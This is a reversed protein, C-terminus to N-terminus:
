DNRLEKIISQKFQNRSPANVFIDQHKNVLKTLRGIPQQKAYEAHYLKESLLKNNRLTRVPRSRTFLMCLEPDNTIKHYIDYAIMADNMRRRIDLPQLNLLNCRDVYPALKFPAGNKRSELLHIVFQKQISEIDARYIEQYPNWIVSAFELRSRVYAIYLIKQTNVTFKDHATRKIFGILQRARGTIQEIHAGFNLQKDLLVGLDRVETKRTVQYDALKYHADVSHRTRAATFIVCKENNLFLRNNICWEYLKDIDRQLKITDAENNIKMFLKIDDAFLSVHAHEVVDVVDNIFISFFLPGLISGPTVGSPADFPRSSTEGIRVTYKRGSLTAAIWRATREGIKFNQLKGILKRHWVRDFATKFDGYFVDLQKKANFAEHAAVSLNLLNTTVSRHQRFGHQANTLLPDIIHTLKWKVAREFIKMLVSSIAIVRYNEISTRVGKKYIPIVKSAKIRGPIISCEFTKQFLLWIPWVIDGVCMKIVHPALGDLGANKSWKLSNIAAEIDFLSVNIDKAGNQECFVEDFNWPIEDRTYLSEFYDAFLEVINATTDAHRGGYNMQGPYNSTKSSLRAFKWFEKPNSAINRQVEDIYESQRVACTQNFDDLAIEYEKLHSANGNNRRKYLKDRRNKRQQIEKNWWKPKSSYKRIRIKPVYDDIANLVVEYFHTFANEVNMGNYIHAFNVSKLLRCISQYDGRKYNYTEIWSKEHSKYEYCDIIIEYPEHYLDQQDREILASRDVTVHVDDFSSSFVLDLVNGSKNQVNSMQYLSLTQMEKLFESAGRHYETDHAEIGSQLFYTDTDDAHWTISHLNFDGLVIIRHNPHSESLSRVCEAHLNAVSNQFKRMYLLYFILPAPKVTIEVAIHECQENHSLTLQRSNLKSHVSIAVGGSRRSTTNREVIRDHRYVDFQPPFYHHNPCIDSLWTETFCLVKYPSFEIKTCINRKNTICRVNNYYVSLTAAASVHKEDYNTMRLKTSSKKETLIREVDTLLKNFSGDDMTTHEMDMWLQLLRLGDFDVGGTGPINRHQISPSVINKNHTTDRGGHPPCISTNSKGTVAYCAATTPDEDDTPRTGDGLPDANRTCTTVTRM